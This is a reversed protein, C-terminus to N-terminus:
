TIEARTPCPSLISTRKETILIAELYNTNYILSMCHEILQKCFTIRSCNTNSYPLKEFDRTKIIGLIQFSSTLEFFKM